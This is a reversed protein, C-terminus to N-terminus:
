LYFIHRISHRCKCTDFLYLYIALCFSSDSQVLSRDAIAGYMTCMLKQKSIGNKNKNFIFVVIVYDM